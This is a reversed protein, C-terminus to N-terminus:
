RGTVNRKLGEEIEYILELGLEQLSMKSYKEMMENGTKQIFDHIEEETINGAAIEVCACLAINKLGNAILKKAEPIFKESM